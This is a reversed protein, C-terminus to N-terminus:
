SHIVDGASVLIRIQSLMPVVTHNDVELLRFQGEELDETPVIYSDFEM